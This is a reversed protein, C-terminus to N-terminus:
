PVNLIRVAHSLSVNEQGRSLTLRIVLLGNQDISNNALSVNCASVQTALLATSAGAPVAVPQTAQRAYGWIRTLTGNGCAYSVPGSVVHFRNGPSAFPFRKATSFSVQGTSASALTALNDGAWADSGAVGLNYIVVASNAPLTPLAQGAYSLQTQANVTDLPFAGCDTATCYRGAAEVPLYEIFWVGSSQQARLSNPLARQIDRQLRRVATDAADALAVRGATDVLGQMPRPIFVAVIPVLLATITVVVVMEILTFGRASFDRHMRPM